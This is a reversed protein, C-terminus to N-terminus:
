YRFYIITAGNGYRPHYGDDVKKIENRNLLRQHIENKLVGEGVGHIVILSPQYHTVALDYYKEFTALQLSLIEYNSMGKKSDTLKEIHLDVESQLESFVDVRRYNLSNLATSIEIEPFSHQVADPYVEMVQFSFSARQEKLMAEIEEFLQKPKIRLIREYYPAKTKDQELLSFECEFRSHDNMEDMSLDHLYFDHGSRIENKLEFGNGTKMRQRYTFTYPISTQNYLYVRFFDVVDENFISKNFVPLFILWVGKGQGVFRTVMQEPKLQDAYIKKKQASEKKETFRKFYPFEMQDTFVPIEVGGVKVLFTNKDLIDVVEGEEGTLSILVKDGIEFKM